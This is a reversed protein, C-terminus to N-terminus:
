NRTSTSAMAALSMRPLTLPLAVTSPSSAASASIRKTNSAHHWGPNMWGGADVFAGLEAVADLDAREGDDLRAYPDARAAADPWMGNHGRARAHSAVVGDEGAGEDASFARM